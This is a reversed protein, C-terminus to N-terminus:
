NRRKSNSITHYCGPDEADIVAYVNFHEAHYCEEGQSVQVVLHVVRLGLEKELGNVFSILPM